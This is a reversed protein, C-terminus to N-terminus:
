EQGLWADHFTLRSSADYGVGHLAPATAAVQALEYVPIAYAEEVLLTQVDEAAQARVAEDPESRVAALAAALHADDFRAPNEPAGGFATRLVDPDPRTFNGFSFALGPEQVAELYEPVPLPRLELAIGVEALQQQVVALVSDNTVVSNIYAVDLELREGDKVRVGDEGEVWGAGDLLDRAADPDHGLLESRDAFGPTSSALVSTAPAAGGGLVPALGERDIGLQVARRVADDALAPHTARPILTSVVGPNARAVLGFGEAELATADDPLVDTTATLEGARLSGTRVSSEAVVQFTLTDLLAEGDVSSRESPWDYGDRRELVTSGDRTYEDLVFAGTGVVNEPLCRAAADLDLTSPAVIGLQVVSATTLFSANPLSFDVQVSLGDVATAGAYGDLYGTVLSSAAGLSVVTDLNRAVVEADLATGDSFTVGDRLHFTFSTSDDNVEWSRALWPLVEGTDPDVDTLSDVVQRTVSISAANGNQQPDLCEPDASVGVVVDGGAAPTTTTEEPVGAPQGAPGASCAGLVMAGLLLLPTGRRTQRRTM